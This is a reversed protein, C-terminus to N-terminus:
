SASQGGSFLLILSIRKIRHLKACRTCSSYCSGPSVDTSLRMDHTFFGVSYHPCVTLCCSYTYGALPLLATHSSTAVEGRGALRDTLEEVPEPQVAGCSPEVRLTMVCGSQKVDAARLKCSPLRGALQGEPGLPNLSSVSPPVVERGRSEKTNVGACRNTTATAARACTCDM